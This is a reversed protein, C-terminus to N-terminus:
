LKRMIFDQLMEKNLSLDAVILKPRANEEELERLRKLETPM